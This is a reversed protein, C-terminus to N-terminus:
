IRRTDKENDASWERDNNVRKVMIYDVQEDEGMFFSHSGNQVFGMNQYFAIADFNKEWVGLWIATKQYEEALEIAKGFLKKGLGKRKFDSKIYIREVELADKKITETQAQNTNIKLYGALDASDYLFYFESNPDDLESKLQDSNYAKDLYDQLHQAENQELFTDKFTEISIKQLVALDDLTCRRIEYAM